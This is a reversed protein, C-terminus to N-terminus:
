GKKGCIMSEVGRNKVDIGGVDSWDGVRTEWDCDFSLYTSAFLPVSARVSSMEELNRRQVLIGKNM